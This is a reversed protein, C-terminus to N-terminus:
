CVLMGPKRSSKKSEVFSPFIVLCPGSPLTIRRELGIVGGLLVSLICVALRLGFDM